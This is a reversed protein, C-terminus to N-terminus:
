IIAQFADSKLITQKHKFLCSDCIRFDRDPQKDYNFHLVLILRKGCIDCTGHHWCVQPSPVGLLREPTIIEM